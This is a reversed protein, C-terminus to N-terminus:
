VTPSVTSQKFGGVMRHNVFNQQDNQNVYKNYAAKAQANVDAEKDGTNVTQIAYARIDIDISQEDLQGEIINAFTVTKFLPETM